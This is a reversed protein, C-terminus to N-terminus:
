YDIFTTVVTLFCKFEDLLLYYKKSKKKIKFNLIISKYKLVNRNFHFKCCQFVVIGM